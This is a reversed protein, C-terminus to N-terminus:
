FNILFFQVILINYISILFIYIKKEIFNKLFFIMLSEEAENIHSLFNTEDM